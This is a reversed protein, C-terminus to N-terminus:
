GSIEASACRGRPTTRRYPLADLATLMRQWQAECQRDQDIMAAIKRRAHRVMAHTKGFVGAVEAQSRDPFRKSLLALVLFRATSVRQTQDASFMERQTIGLEGAVVQIVPRAWAHTDPITDAPTYSGLRRGLETLLQIDTAEGLLIAAPTDEAGTPNGNAAPHSM